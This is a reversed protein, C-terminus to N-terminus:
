ENSNDQTFFVEKVKEYTRFARQVGLLILASGFIIRIFKHDFLPSFIIFLGLGIYFFIM